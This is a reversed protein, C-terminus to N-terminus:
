LRCAGVGQAGPSQGGDIPQRRQMDSGSAAMLVDDFQKQLVVGVRSHAGGFRSLRGDTECDDHPMALDRLQKPVRSHLPHLRKRSNFRPHRRTNLEEQCVLRRMDVHHFDSVEPAAGNLGLELISAILCRTRARAATVPVSPAHAPTPSTCTACAIAHGGKLTSCPM